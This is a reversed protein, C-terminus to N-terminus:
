IQPQPVSDGLDKKNPTKKNIKVSEPEVVETVVFYRGFQHIVPSGPHCGIVKGDEYGKFTCRIGEPLGPLSINDIWIRIPRELPKGNISDTLLM